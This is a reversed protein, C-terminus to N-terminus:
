FTPNYELLSGVRSRTRPLCRVLAASEDASAHVAVGRGGRGGRGGGGGQATFYLGARNGEVSKEVLFFM